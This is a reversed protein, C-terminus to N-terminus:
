PQRHYGCGARQFALLSDALVSARQGKFECQAALTKRGGDPLRQTIAANGANDARILATAGYIIEKASFVDGQVELQLVIEVKELEGGGVFGNRSQLNFKLLKKYKSSLM